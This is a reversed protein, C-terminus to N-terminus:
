SRSGLRKRLEDARAHARKVIVAPREAGTALDHGLGDLASIAWEVDARTGGGGNLFAARAAAEGTTPYDSEPNWGGAPDYFGVTFLDNDAGARGARESTIYVYAM